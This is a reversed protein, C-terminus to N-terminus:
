KERIRAAIEILAALCGLLLVAVVVGEISYTDWVWQIGGLLM